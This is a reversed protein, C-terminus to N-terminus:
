DEEENIGNDEREKRQKYELYDRYLEEAHEDATAAAMCCAWAFVGFILVVILLIIKM